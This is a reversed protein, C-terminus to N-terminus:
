LNSGTLGASSSLSYSCTVDQFEAPLLTRLHEMAEPSTPDLDNPNPVGDFDLMLWLRPQEVFWPVTEGEDRKERAARRVCTDPVTQNEPNLKGRIVLEDSCEGIESLVRHLQHIDAVEAERCTFYKGARHSVTEPTGDAKRTHTKAAIYDPSCKLITIKGGECFDDKSYSRTM